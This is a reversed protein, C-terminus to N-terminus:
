RVELQEQIPRRGGADQPTWRVEITVGPREGPGPYRKRGILDTVRSDDTYVHATKLADLIARELKDTDGSTQHIPMGAAIVSGRQGPAPRPLRFLLEVEVPGDLPRWGAPLGHAVIRAVDARWKPLAKNDDILITRGKITVPKKSGQPVPLGPVEFKV